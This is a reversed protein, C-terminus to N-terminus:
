LYVLGMDHHDGDAHAAKLSRLRLGARKQMMTQLLQALSGKHERLGQSLKNARAAKAAEAEAVKRNYASVQGASM